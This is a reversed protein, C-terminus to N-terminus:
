SLQSSSSSSSSFFVSTFFIPIHTYKYLSISYRYIATGFLNKIFIFTNKWKKKASVFTESFFFNLSFILSFSFRNFFFCCSTFSFSSSSLTLTKRFCMVMKKKHKDENLNIKHWKTVPLLVWGQVLAQLSTLPASIVLLQLNPTPLLRRQYFCIWKKSKKDTFM